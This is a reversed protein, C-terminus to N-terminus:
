LLKEMLQDVTISLLDENIPPFRYSFKKAVKLSAELSLKDQDVCYAIGKGKLYVALYNQEPQGPTPVLVSRKQLKILDMVTSYGCRGIVYEARSIELNLEAAPLHNYFRIMNTSPLMKASGPLGRVITATGNYHVIERLIKEELLTRQPEPGSFIIVLHDKKEEVAQKEFRSLVGVYHVPISPKKDPHSLEGSLNNNDEEDPIWCSAFRNIYKYNIQRLWRGSLRRGPAKIQLQHTIFICRVVPHYLGFRNDSIVVDFAHENVMEKLWRNERRISRFIEPVQFIVTRLLQWASRAYRIRYGRLSLFPLDPFETRLLEEQAGEGALWVEAGQNLLERVIPICRTAHGLGWDLPAVLIRPKGHKKGQRPQDM